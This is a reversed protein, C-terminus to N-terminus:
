DLARWTLKVIGGMIVLYTVLRAELHLQTLTAQNSNNNASM